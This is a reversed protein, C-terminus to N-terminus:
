EGLMGGFKFFAKSKVHDFLKSKLHDSFRLLWLRWRIQRWIQIAREQDTQNPLHPSYVTCNYLETLSDIQTRSIALHRQWNKSAALSQMAKAFRTAFECPTEGAATNTSISKGLLDFRQYLQLIVATPALAKLRRIDAWQWALFSLALLVLLVSFGILWAWSVQWLNPKPFPEEERLAQATLPGEAPTGLGPRGGTPEFEVWGIGPFYLESWSHADAETVITKGEERDLGGGAYGMVLRAPIGAARALVVMATAYYDCYGRKLDFLFYDVLDANPPPLPVDLTYPISKLHSEIALARDYPTPQAATLQLALAYVRQPITTPLTLYRARIGQPYESGAARLQDQSPINVLSRVQYHSRTILGGFIDPGASPASRRWAIQYDQDAALVTGAAYLMDKAEGLIKFEQLIVAYNQWAAAISEDEPFGPPKALEGARYAITEPKGTMWGNGTYIDYTRSRWYDLRGTERLHSSPEGTSTQIQAPQIEMVIQQSLEPGSGILHSRPMGPSGWNDYLTNDLLQRRLGLSEGLEEVQAHPIRLAEQVMQNIRRPSINPAFAAVSVIMAAMPVAIMALDLSIEESYDTGETDWRRLRSIHQVLTILLLASGLLPLLSLPDARSYGLSAALLVGGPTVAVLPQAQRRVAWAAWTAAGWLALSWVLITILPDYTPNGTALGTLFASLRALLVILKDWLEGWATLALNAQNLHHSGNFPDRVLGNGFQNLRQLFAFLDAYLDGLHLLLGSTGFFAAIGASWGAKLKSRALLWGTALGASALGLAQGLSLGRVAFTLGYTISSFSVLLLSFSLSTGAGIQRFFRTSLNRQEAIQRIM